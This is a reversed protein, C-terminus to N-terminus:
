ASYALDLPIIFTFSRRGGLMFCSLCIVQVFYTFSRIKLAIRALFIAAFGCDDARPLEICPKWASNGARYVFTFFSHAALIQFGVLPCFCDGMIALAPVYIKAWDSSGILVGIFLARNAGGLLFSPVLNVRLFMRKM